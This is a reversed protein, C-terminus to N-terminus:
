LGQGCVSRAAHRREDGPDLDAALRTREIYGFLQARWGQRRTASQERSCLHGRGCCRGCEKGQACLREARTDLCGALGLGPHRGAQDGIWYPNRINQLAERCAAGDPDTTCPEFLAHAPALNGGVTSKLREWSEANPWARDAPRVRPQRTRQPATASRAIRPVWGGAMFPLLGISQLLARRKM